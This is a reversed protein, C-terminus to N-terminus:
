APLEPSQSVQPNRTSVPASDSDGLALARPTPKGRYTRKMEGVKSKKAWVIKRRQCIEWITRASMRLEQAAERLGVKRDAALVRIRQLDRPSAIHTPSTRQFPLALEPWRNRLTSHSIGLLRAAPKIGGTEALAAAVQEPTLQAKNKPEKGWNHHRLHDIGRMVELNAPDNNTRCEDKHHVHEGKQIRRGVIDEAVLRHQPVWGWLNQLHHGPLFEWVYGNYQVTRGGRYSPFADFVPPYASKRRSMRVM